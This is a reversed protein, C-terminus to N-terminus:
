HEPAIHTNGFDDIRARQRSHLVITTGPHEIVAPGDIEAGAGLTAGDYIPTEVMGLKYPCFTPRRTRPEATKAGNIKQAAPKEVAGIADVGYDVCEIGADKLASGPGFLREYEAEFAAAIEQVSGATDILAPVRVRVTHVQRRYRAEVWREFRRDREIVEAEALLRTGQEEM